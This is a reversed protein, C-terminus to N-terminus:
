QVAHRINMESPERRKGVRDSLHIALRRAVEHTGNWKGKYTYHDAGDRFSADPLLEHLDLVKAGAAEAAHRINRLSQPLGDLPLGVNRSHEINFPEIYVTVPIQAESFRRVVQSLLTLNPHDDPLGRVVPGLAHQLTSRTQRRPATKPGPMHNAAWRSRRIADHLQKYGTSGVQEDLWYTFPEYLRFARAQLQRTQRWLGDAHAATLANYLLLRDATLGSPLLPLTLAEPLKHAPLWGAGEAYSFGRMSDKNFGRLNLAFVVRTPRAAIIRESAFYWGAPGLGPMRFTHIQMGDAARWRELVRQLRGPLGDEPRDMEPDTMLTSDGILAVRNPTSDAALTREYYALNDILQFGLPLEPIGALEICRQTALWMGSAAAAFGAAFTLWRYTATCFATARPYTSAFTARFTVAGSVVRQGDLM